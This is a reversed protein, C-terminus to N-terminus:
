PKVDEWAAKELRKCEETEVRRKGILKDWKPIVCAYAREIIPGSEDARILEPLNESMDERCAALMSKLERECETYPVDFCAKFEPATCAAEAIQESMLKFMADVRIPPPNPKNEESLAIPLGFFLLLVGLVLLRERLLPKLM